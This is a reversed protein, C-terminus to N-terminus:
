RKPHRLFPSTFINLSLPVTAQEPKRDHDSADTEFKQRPSYKPSSMSESKKRANFTKAAAFLHPNGEPLSVYSHFIVIKLPFIVM